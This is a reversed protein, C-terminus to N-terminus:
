IWALSLGRMVEILYPVGWRIAACLMWSVDYYMERGCQLPTVEVLNAGGLSGVQNSVIAWNDSVAGFLILTKAVVSALAPMGDM